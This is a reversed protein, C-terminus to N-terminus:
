LRHISRGQLVCAHLATRRGLKTHYFHATLMLCETVTNISKNADDKIFIIIILKSPSWNRVIISICSNQNSQGVYLIKIRPYNKRQDTNAYRVDLSDLNKGILKMTMFNVTKSLNTYISWREVIMVSFRTCQMCNTVWSKLKLLSVKAANGSIINYTHKSMCQAM